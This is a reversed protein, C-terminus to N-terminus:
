GASEETPVGSAPSTRASTAVAASARTRQAAARRRAARLAIRQRRLAVAQARAAAVARARALRANRARRPANNPDLYIFQAMDPSITMGLRKRALAVIRPPASLRAAQASLVANETRLERRSKELKGLEASREIVLNNLTIVGVASVVLVLAVLLGTCIVVVRRFRENARARAAIAPGLAVILKLARAPASSRARARRVHRQKAGQTTAAQSSGDTWWSDAPAASGRKSKARRVNGSM